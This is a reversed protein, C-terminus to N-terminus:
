RRKNKKYLEDIRNPLHSLAAFRDKLINISDQNGVEVFGDTNTSGNDYFSESAFMDDCALFACLRERLQQPVDDICVVRIYSRTGQFGQHANLVEVLRKHKATNMGDIAERQM